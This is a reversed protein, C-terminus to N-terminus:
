RTTTQVTVTLEASHMLQDDDTSILHYHIDSLTITSVTKMLTPDAFLTDLVTAILLDHADEANEPDIGDSAQVVILLETNQYRSGAGIGLTRAVFSSSMRYIGVWPCASPDINLLSSREVKVGSMRADNELMTKIATTIKSAELPRM